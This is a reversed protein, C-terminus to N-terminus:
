SRIGKENRYRQWQQAIFEQIRPIDAEDLEQQRVFDEALQLPESNERVIIRAPSEEGLDIPIRFLVPGLDASVPLKRAVPDRSEEDYNVEKPSVDNTPTHSSAGDAPGRGQSRFASGPRESWQM